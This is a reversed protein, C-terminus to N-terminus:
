KDYKEGPQLYKLNIIKEMKYAINFIKNEEFLNTNINIGIPMKTEDDFLWPITLSPMGNFNALLLANDAIDKNNLTIKSVEIDSVESAVHSASPFILADVKTFMIDLKNKILRRIKKAHQLLESQHNKQTSYSGIIYRTKVVEGLGETRSKIMSDKWNNGKARNGFIIGNLNAQSSVAESCTIIYYIPLMVELLNLPLHLKIIKINEKKLKNLMELFKIKLKSNLNNFIEEIYGVKYNSIDSDINKFVKDSNKLNYTTLDNIHNKELHDFLIAADRVNQTFYGITDLSPSYPILGHRSFTGYTPKFGVTNTYSAPRRISDGTDSALAFPILGTAVLAASGSSSGGVIHSKNWPNLVKGFASSLGTGGMGLEDLQTKGLLISKQNNLNNIIDANYQPIFNNLIKSSATTLINKTIINDKAVYPMAFLWNNKELPTNDLSKALKMAYEETETVFANLDNWKKLQIYIDKVIDSPKKEKNIILSRIKEITYNM